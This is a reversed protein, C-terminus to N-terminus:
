RGRLLIQAEQPMVSYRLRVSKIKVSILSSEQIKIRFYEGIYNLPLLLQRIMPYTTTNIAEILSLSEDNKALYVRITTDKAEYEVVIQRLRKIKDKVGFDIKGTDMVFNILTEFVSGLGASIRVVFDDRYLKSTTDDIDACGLLLQYQVYDKASVSSIDSSTSNTFWASWSATLCDAATDATRMRFASGSTEDVLATWAAASLVDAFM